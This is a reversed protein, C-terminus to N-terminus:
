VLNEGSQPSRNGVAKIIEVKKSLSIPQHTARSTARGMGAMPFYLIIISCVICVAAKAVHCNMSDTYYDRTYRKPGCSKNM